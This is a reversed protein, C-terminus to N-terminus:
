GENLYDIKLYLRLFIFSIIYYCDLLLIKIEKLIVLCIFLLLFLWLLIWFFIGFIRKIMCVIVSIKFM